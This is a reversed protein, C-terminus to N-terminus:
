AEKEEAPKEMEMIARCYGNQHYFVVSYSKRGILFSAEPPVETVPVDGKYMTVNDGFNYKLMNNLALAAERPNKGYGEFKLKGASIGM